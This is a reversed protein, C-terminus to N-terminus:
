RASRRATLRMVARAPRRTSASGRQRARGISGPRPIRRRGFIWFGSRSGRWLRRSRALGAHGRSWDRREQQARRGLRQQRGLAAVDAARMRQNWLSPLDVTGVIEDMPLRLIVKYPNFTDVRGAGQPPRTDFWANERARDLIGNRTARIVFLRYLLRDFWSIRPNEKRIAAMLTEYTFRPDRACATLFNAYGQLDMQAAPMGPVIQRPSTPSERYTGVHCTACNLGVRAFRGPKYSTGIPRGHPAHDPLFGLREYGVGPRTPLKDAFVTPLVRWIWYPLGVGEETGISGYKFHDVIDPFSPSDQAPPQAEVVIASMLALAAVLRLRSGGSLRGRMRLAAPRVRDHNRPDDRGTLRLAVRRLVRASEGRRQRPVQQLLHVAAAPARRRRRVDQGPRQQRHAAACDHRRRVPQQGAGARHGARTQFGGTCLVPIKVAQKIRHADPLNLGEINKFDGRARDWRRQFVDGTLRGRFFLYNRLTLSGSSLLTDYTKRLEDLALDGAPNRPHPFSSGTSVHIADVGEAELWRCVQVSDELTNGKGEDELIADNYEIASIKMQLHFDRGVEKRIARVIDLVFRARNQLAGGYEDNRDNIASSLFQTILYGNAGHLEVGDAGAERARRAGQGFANVVEHIQTTTMRECEFGHLPERRDTSSIGKAFEIGPVDRQRGGHSLQLIYRCDSEGHVQRVLEKWFPLRDDRDITAYNPMIRGRIAVPVFSSIIAGVGGRAFKLEWNIRAQSGSGDYNDFRGSVNSRFVRNKVQLTRFQLPSFLHPYLSTGPTQPEVAVPPAAAPRSWPAGAEAPSRGAAMGVGLVGLLRRRTIM